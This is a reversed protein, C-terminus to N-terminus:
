QQDFSGYKNAIFNPRKMREIRPKNHVSNYSIFLMNRDWPSLNSPSSHILNSHFFLISGSKGKASIMGKERINKKITEEELVYKLKSSLQSIYSQSNQYEKFSASEDELVEDYEQLNLVGDKHSSPVLYMPGNYENIDGLFIALTLANPQPMGDEKHWFVFDQHWEWPEGLFACKNNFKIQYPYIESGILESVIATLNQNGVVSDVVKNKNVEVFVSRVEGSKELIVANPDIKRIQPIENVIASIETKSLFSDLLLYGDSDYKRKYESLKNM